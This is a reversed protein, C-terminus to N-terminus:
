KEDARLRNIWLLWICLVSLVLLVQFVYDHILNFQNPLYEAAGAAGVLRLLNLALLAPIGVAFALGKDRGSAPYTLVLAAFVAILYAGTCDRNVQLTRSGLLILNGNVANPIGLASILAAAVKTTADIPPRVVAVPAVTIAITLIVLIAIFAIM